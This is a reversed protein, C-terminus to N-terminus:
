DASPPFSDSAVENLAKDREENTKAAALAAANKKVALNAEYQGVERLGLSVLWSMIKEVASALLSSLM